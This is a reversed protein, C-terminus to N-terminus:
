RKMFSTLSGSMGDIGGSLGPEDSDAIPEGLSNGDLLPLSDGGHFATGRRAIRGFEVRILLVIEDSFLATGDLRGCCPGPRGSMGAFLVRCLSAGETSKSEPWRDNLCLDDTPDSNSTGLRWSWVCFLLSLMFENTLSTSSELCFEGNVSENEICGSLSASSSSCSFICDMM